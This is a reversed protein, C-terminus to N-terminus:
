VPIQDEFGTGSTIGTTREKNKRQAAAAFALTRAGSTFGATLAARGRGRIGAAKTLQNQILARDRARIANINEASVRATEDLVDLPSGELTVGSKLFALKQSALFRRAQEENRVFDADSEFRLLQARSEVVDAADQSALFGFLGSIIDLGASAGAFQTSTAM